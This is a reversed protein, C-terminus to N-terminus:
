SEFEAVEEPSPPLGLLDFSARRVLERPSALPNMSLNKENLKALVFADISNATLRASPLGPISPRVVPQFAWYERDSESITFKGFRLKPSTDPGATALHAGAALLLMIAQCSKM